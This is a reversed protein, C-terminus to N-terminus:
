AAVITKNLEAATATKAQAETEPEPDFYWQLSDQDLKMGVDKEDEAFEAAAALRTHEPKDGDMPLRKVLKRICTKKVMEDFHSKWVESREKGIKKRFEEGTEVTMWEFDYGGTNLDAVAYYAVVPGRNKLVPVHELRWGTGQIPKFHDNEHVEATKISSVLGSQLCLKILGRYGPILQLKSGFPIMHALGQVSNPVLGMSCAELVANMVSDVSCDLIKPNRNVEAVVVSAVQQPKIHAPLASKIKPMSAALETRLVDTTIAKTM